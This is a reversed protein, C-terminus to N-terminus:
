MEDKILKKAKQRERKKSVGNVHSHDCNSCWHLGKKSGYPLSKPKHGCYTCGYENRKAM